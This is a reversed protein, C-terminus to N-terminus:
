THFASMSKSTIGPDYFGGFLVIYHKFIAMRSADSGVDHFPLIFTGTGLDRVPAYKPISGIGPILQLTSVGFIVTIIFLTRISLLSNVM